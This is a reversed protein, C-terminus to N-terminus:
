FLPIGWDNERAMGYTTPTRNTCGGDGSESTEHKPYVTRLTGVLSSLLCFDCKCAWDELDSTEHKPYVTRLTGVEFSLRKQNAVSTEHKPYVTRM